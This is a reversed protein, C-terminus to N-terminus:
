GVCWARLKVTIAREDLCMNVRTPDLVEVRRKGLALLDGRLEGLVVVREVQDTVNRGARTEQRQRPAAPLLGVRGRAGQRAATQTDTQVLQSGFQSSSHVTGLYPMEGVQGFRSPPLGDVEQTLSIKEQLRESCLVVLQAPAM